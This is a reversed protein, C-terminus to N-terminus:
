AKTLLAVLAEDGRERALDLVTKGQFNQWNPDPDGNALLWRALDAHGKSVANSLASSIGERAGREYLLAVLTM